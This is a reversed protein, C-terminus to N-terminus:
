PAARAASARRTRGPTTSRDRANLMGPTAKAEAEYSRTASALDAFEQFLM